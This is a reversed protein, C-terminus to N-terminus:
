EGIQELIFDALTGVNRFPSNRRSMASESTLSIEVDDDLFRSEVDVVVNVLGMSDLVSNSGFLPTDNSAKQEIDQLEFYENLVDILIELVKAKKM